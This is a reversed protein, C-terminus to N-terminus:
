LQNAMAWAETIALFFAEAYNSISPLVFALSADIAGVKTEEDMYGTFLVKDRM